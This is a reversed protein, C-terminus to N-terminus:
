FIATSVFLYFLGYNMLLLQLLCLKHIGIPMCIRWGVGLRLGLLSFSIQVGHVTWSCKWWLFSQMWVKYVELLEFSFFIWIGRWISISSIWSWPQSSWCRVMIENETRSMNRIHVHREYKCEIIPMLVSCFLVFEFSPYFTLKSTKMAQFSFSKKKVQPILLVNISCYTHHKWKHLHQATIAGAYKNITILLYM